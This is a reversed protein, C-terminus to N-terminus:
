QNVQHSYHASQIKKIQIKIKLINYPIYYNEQQTKILDKFKSLIHLLKGTNHPTLQNILTGIPAWQEIEEKENPNIKQDLGKNLLISLSIQCELHIQALKILRQDKFGKKWKFIIIYQVIKQSRFEKRSYQLFIKLM